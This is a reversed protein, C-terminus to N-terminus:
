PGEGIEIVFAGVHDKKVFDAQAERLESLPYTAAVVPKIEDREIYSVLNEFVAPPFVTAGHMTIDRLYLTRLDLEVIPGAIAGATM